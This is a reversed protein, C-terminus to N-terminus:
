QHTGFDTLLPDALPTLLDNSRQLLGRLRQSELLLPERAVQILRQVPGWDGKWQRRTTISATGLHTMHQLLAVAEDPSMELRAM